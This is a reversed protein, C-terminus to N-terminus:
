LQGFSRQCRLLGGTPPCPPDGAHRVRGYNLYGGCSDVTLLLWWYGGVVWTCSVLTTNVKLPSAKKTKLQFGDCSLCM